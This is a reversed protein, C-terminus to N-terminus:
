SRHTLQRSRQEMWPITMKGPRQLDFELTTQIQFNVAGAGVKQMGVSMSWVSSGRTIANECSQSFDIVAVPRGLSVTTSQYTWPQGILKNSPNFADRQPCPLLGVNVRVAGLDSAGSPIVAVVARVGRVIADADLTFRGAVEKDSIKAIGGESRRAKTSTRDFEGLLTVARRLWTELRELYGPGAAIPREFDWGALVSLANQLAWAREHISGILGRIIDRQRLYREYFNLAGGEENSRSALVRQYDEVLDTSQKTNKEIVDQDVAILGQAAEVGRSLQEFGKGLRDAKAFEVQAAKNGAQLRRAIEGNFMAGEIERVFPLSHLFLAYDLERRIWAAQLDKAERVCNQATALDSALSGIFTPWQYLSYRQPRKAGYLRLEAAIVADITEDLFLSAQPGTARGVKSLFARIASAGDPGSESKAPRKKKM